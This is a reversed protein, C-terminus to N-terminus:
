NCSITNSVILKFIKVDVEEINIWLKRFVRNIQIM